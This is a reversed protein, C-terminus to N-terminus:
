EHRVVYLRVDADALAGLSLALTFEERVKAWKDGYPELKWYEAGPPGAIDTPEGRLKELGLGPLALTVLTGVHRASSAKGKEAVWRALEASEM